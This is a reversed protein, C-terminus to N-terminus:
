STQEQTEVPEVAPGCAKECMSCIYYRTVGTGGGFRVEAGCCDSLPKHSREVPENLADLAGRAEGLLRRAEAGGYMYHGREVWDALEKLADALMRVSAESETPHERAAIWGAEFLVRALPWHHEGVRSAWAEAEIAIDIASRERETLPERTSM